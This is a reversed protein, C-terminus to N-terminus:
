SESSAQKAKREAADRISKELKAKRNPKVQFLGLYQLRVSEHTGEEIKSRLFEFQSRCVDEVLDEPLDLKKAIESFEKELM